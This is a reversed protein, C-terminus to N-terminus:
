AFQIENLLSASSVGTVVAVESRMSGCHHFSARPGECGQSKAGSRSPDAEPLGVEPSWRGSAVPQLLIGDSM